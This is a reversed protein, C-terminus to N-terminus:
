RLFHFLDKNKEQWDALSVLGGDERRAESRNLDLRYVLLSSSDPDSALVRGVETGIPAAESIKIPEM